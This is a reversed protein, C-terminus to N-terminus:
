DDERDRGNNHGGEDNGHDYNDGTGNHDNDSTESPNDPFGDDNDSFGDCDRDNACGTQNPVGTSNGAYAYSSIVFQGSTADYQLVLSKSAGNVRAGEIAVTRPGLVRASAGTMDLSVSAPAEGGPANSVTVTVTQRTMENSANYARVELTHSGNTALRTNLASSFGSRNAYPTSPMARGVDDRSGGYGVDGVYTGDLYFEIRVVAPTGTAWGEVPVIGSVVQNATPLDITVTPPAANAVSSALSGALALLVFAIKSFRNM